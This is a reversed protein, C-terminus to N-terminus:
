EIAVRRLGIHKKIVNIIDATSQYRHLPKNSEELEGLVMRTVKKGHRAFYIDPKGTIERYVIEKGLGISAYDLIFVCLDAEQTCKKDHRSVDINSGAELGIFDLITVSDLARLADKLADQFNVRFEDPADTLAMGVYITISSSGSM